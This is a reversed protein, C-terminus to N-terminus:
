QSSPPIHFKRSQASAPSLPGDEPGQASIRNRLVSTGDFVGLFLGIAGPYM